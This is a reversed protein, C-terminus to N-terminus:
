DMYHNNKLGYKSFHRVPIGFRTGDFGFPSPDLCSFFEELPPLIHQRFKKMSAGENSSDSYCLHDVAPGLFKFCAVLAAHSPFGTYFAVMKDSDAINSLRFKQQELSSKAQQLECELSKVKTTLAKLEDDCELETNVGQECYHVSDIATTQENFRLELSKLRSEKVGASVKTPLVPLNLSPVEDEYLKRGEARTFHRSCVRTSGNLPLNSRGIVHIWQKLLKKNKLALSFYSLNRERDSRSSCFPM